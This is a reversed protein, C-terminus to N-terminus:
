AHPPSTKPAENLVISPLHLVFPLVGEDQFHSIPASLTALAPLPLANGLCGFVNCHDHPGQGHADGHTDSAHVLEGHACVEHHEFQELVASGQLFALLFLLIIATTRKM